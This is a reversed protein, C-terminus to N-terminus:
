EKVIAFSLELIEKHAQIYDNLDELNLTRIKELEKVSNGLPEGKYYEMYSRSLRQSLTETRLPESGLLFRKTQDLEEQTVGNKVFDSIVENVTKKAEELSELKTQLYGMMYSHSQNVSVRAYASYALGRKVRIEEMLRSGFGGTGLIFTAVRAKYYDEDNAKMHYPSGFYIYAQETKRILTKSEPKKITPYFDLEGREGKPMKELLKTYYNKAEEVSIDGGVVVILRELVLHSKLFSEVESVKIKEISKFTGVAPSELPTGKFLISKLAVNAVYDYDSEKRQLSGSVTTKIKQLTKEDYNPNYLLEELLETAEKFEEKLAGMEMVLTESGIHTSLHIAKADLADAFGESGRKKSGENLLKASISALGLNTGDQLSGSNRFVLQTSVMPLRADHEYVLPVKVGNINMYDLTTAMLLQGFLLITAFIKM